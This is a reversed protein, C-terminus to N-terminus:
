FGGFGQFRPNIFNNLKSGFRFNIGFYIRYNYDSALQRKRTLVDQESANGKVLYVQDHVISGSTNIYFSLAGTVRVDVNLNAGMNNLKWDPFYNRYYISSYFTGWKQNLTLTASVRHGYLTEKLKDYLTTEYYSNNTVDIGYRLVFFRNNVESYPYIDYEISPNFYIKRKYNSFTNNTYNAQYGYSWNPGLAKVVHHFLGYESNKVTYKSFGSSDEYEFVSRRKSGYVRFGAKLNKTTRNASFDSSYRNSKYVKDSNFEGDIGVNYIWYNWKDKTVAASLLNTSDGGKMDISIASAYATRAVLPAIGIMIGHVLQQRVEADTATRATTFLLTDIYGNYAQQGYFILQYQRGGSGAKQATILVHVDAAQRDLLFDVIKIESRIFTRDCGIRSCDIFVQLKKLSSDQATAQLCYFISFLLGAAKRM